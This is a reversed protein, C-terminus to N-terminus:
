LTDSVGSLEDTTEAATDRGGNKVPYIKIKKYLGDGVSRSRIREDNALYQHVVKRDKPPLARLYVSRGQELAKEKLREALEILSKSSEDRFGNCDFSVNVRADPLQHQLVRKIFLQFSDLLAGEKEVLLAKDGGSIEVTIEESEAVSESRVDFSLDLQSKEILGSMVDRVLEGASGSVPAGQRKKGAGFLKSFFGSM